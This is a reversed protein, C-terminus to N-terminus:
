LYEFIYELPHVVPFKEQNGTVLPKLYLSWLSIDQTEEDTIWLIMLSTAIALKRWQQYKLHAKQSKETLLIQQLNSTDVDKCYGSANFIIM